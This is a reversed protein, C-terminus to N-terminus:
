RQFLNLEISRVKVCIKEKFLNELYKGSGNLMKNGYTDNGIDVALECVFTGNKDHIGESICVVLNPTTELM